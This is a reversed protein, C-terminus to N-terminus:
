FTLTSESSETSEPTGDDESANDYGSLFRFVWGLISFQSEQQVIVSNILDRELNLTTLQQELLALSEPDEVMEMAKEVKRISNTNHSLSSRLQGLNKYDTGILLTQWKPRKEVETLATATEETQEEVEEAITLLEESTVVEGVDEESQAVVELASVVVDSSEKLQKATPSKASIDVPKGVGKGNNDKDNKSGKDNTDDPKNNAGKENNEDNTQKGLVDVDTDSVTTSVYAGLAVLGILVLLPLHVVYFTYSAPQKNKSM